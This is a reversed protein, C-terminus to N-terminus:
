DAGDANGSDAEQRSEAETIRIDGFITNQYVRIMKMKAAELLALFACIIDFLSNPRIILDTFLFDRKTDLYEQILTLKENVSVEEYLDLFKTSSLSGIIANFTKLLDGIEIEEWLEEDAFPLARQRNKREFIWETEREKEGIMDSLKKIKQYEILKEVLEKRPDEFEDSMDAEVPLLMRSKIYLLTAAMLYFEAINELDMKVALELYALYQETIEVIPIDYINIENVRILELLKDLPGEFVGDIKFKIKKNQGEEM